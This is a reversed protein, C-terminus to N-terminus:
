ITTPTETQRPMRKDPQIIPPRDPRNMLFYKLDSIEDDMDFLKNRAYPHLKPERLIILEFTQLDTHPDCIVDLLASTSEIAPDTKAGRKLLYSVAAHNNFSCAYALPTVNGLMMEMEAGEDLLRKMIAIQHCRAVCAQFLCTSGDNMRANVDAGLEILFSVAEVNGHRCAWHLLTSGDSTDPTDIGVFKFARIVAERKSVLADMTMWHRLTAAVALDVNARRHLLVYIAACNDYSCAIALPTLNDNKTKGNVDAGLHILLSVAWANGDRCASHLPTWGDSPDPTHIDAYDAFIKLVEAREPVLAKMVMWKQLTAGRKLLCEVVGTHGHMAAYALVPITGKWPHTRPVLLNPDAGSEIAKKIWTFNEDKCAQLLEANRQILKPDDHRVLPEVRQVLAQQPPSTQETPAETPTAQGTPISNLHAPVYAM